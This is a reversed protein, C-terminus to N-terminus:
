NNKMKEKTTVISKAIIRMLQECGDVLDAVKENPVIESKVLLRLWYKTERAEKLAISQKSVFDKDSEASRSEEMNAGISTGSRFLQAALLRPTGPQKDLYSCLKTIRVAFEFTRENIPTHNNM